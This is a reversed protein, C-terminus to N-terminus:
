ADGIDQRGLLLKSKLEVAENLPRESDGSKLSEVMAM